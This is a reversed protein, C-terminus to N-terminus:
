FESHVELIPSSPIKFCIQLPLIFVLSPFKHKCPVYIRKLLGPLDTTTSHGKAEELVSKNVNPNCFYIYTFINISISISPLLALHDFTSYSFQYFLTAFLNVANCAFPLLLQIIKWKMLNTECIMKIKSEQKPLSWISQIIISVYKLIFFIYKQQINSQPLMIFHETLQFSSKFDNFVLIPLCECFVARLCLM